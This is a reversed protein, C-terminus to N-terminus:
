VDEIGLENDKIINNPTKYCSVHYVRDFCNVDEKYALIEDWVYERLNRDMTYPNLSTSIFVVTPLGKASRIDLVCKLTHSEILKSDITSFFCFLVDSNMYESWSYRGTITKPMKVINKYDGYYYNPEDEENEGGIAKKLGMGLLLKRENEVRLEALESLSIYPVAHWDRQLMIKLCTNVFSTKGFGNPAGILYSCNPINGRRISTIIDNLTRIYSGFMRVKFKTRAARAQAVVNDKVHQVDFEVDKYAPPILAQNVALEGTGKKIQIVPPEIKDKGTYKGSGGAEKNIEKAVEEETKIEVGLKKMAELSSSM